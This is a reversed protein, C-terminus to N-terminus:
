RQTQWRQCWGSTKCLMPSRPFRGSVRAFGARPRTSAAEPQLMPCPAPYHRLGIECSYNMLMLAAQSTAVRQTQDIQQKVDDLAMKTFALANVDYPEAREFNDTTLGPASSIGDGTLRYPKGTM